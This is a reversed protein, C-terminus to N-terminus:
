GKEFSIMLLAPVDSGQLPPPHLPVWWMALLGGEELVLEM